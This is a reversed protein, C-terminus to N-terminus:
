TKRIIGNEILTALCNMAELREMRALSLIDDYSILGDVLSLIFGAEKSLNKSKIEDFSMVMKPVSQFDGIAGNYKAFMHTRALAEYGIIETDVEQDMANKFEKDAEEFRRELMLELGKKKWNSAAQSQSDGDGSVSEGSSVPGPSGLNKLTEEDLNSKVMEMYEGALPHDPSVGLVKHWREAAEKFKGLGYCTLGEDILKEISVQGNSEDM